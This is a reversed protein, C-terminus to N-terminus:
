GRVTRCRFCACGDAHGPYGVSPSTQTKGAQADAIAQVALNYPAIERLQPMQLSARNRRPKASDNWRRTKCKACYVPTKEGKLWVHGCKDCVWATVTKEGM